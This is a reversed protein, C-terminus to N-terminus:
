GSSSEDCVDDKDFCITKRDYQPFSLENVEKGFWSLEAARLVASSKQTVGFTVNDIRSDYFYRNMKIAIGFESALVKERIACSTTLCMEGASFTRNTIEYSVCRPTKNDQLTITEGIAFIERNSENDCVCFKTDDVMVDGTLPAQYDNINIHLSNNLLDYVAKTYKNLIRM